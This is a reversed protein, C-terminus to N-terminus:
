KTMGKGREDLKTLVEDLGRELDMRLFRVTDTMEVLDSADLELAERLEEIETAMALIIIDVPIRNGRRPRYMHTVGEHVAKVEIGDPGDNLIEVKNSM